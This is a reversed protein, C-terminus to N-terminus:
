GREQRLREREVKVVEALAADLDAPLRLEESHATVSEAVGAAVVHGGRRATAYRMWLFVPIGLLILLFGKYVVEYGSGAVTWIAYALALGAVTAHGALR